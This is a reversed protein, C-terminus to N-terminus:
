RRTRAFQRVDEGDLEDKSRGHLPAAVDLVAQRFQVHRLSLTDGSKAWRLAVWLPESPFRARLCSPIADTRSWDFDGAAEDWSLEGGTILLLMRQPSRHELWWEIERQVRPSAAAAPSALLLFYDADALATVIAPWLEPS